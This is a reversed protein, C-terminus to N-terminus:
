LAAESAYIKTRGPGHKAICKKCRRMMKGRLKQYVTNQTTFLHGRRCKKRTCNRHRLNEAKSVFRLHAPNVCSRNKCIHDAEEGPKPIKGTILLAARHATIFRGGYSFLGYGSTLKKALWEWCDDPSSKAVKRWFRVSTEERKYVGSPM